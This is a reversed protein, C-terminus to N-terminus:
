FDLDAYHAPPPAGPIHDALLPRFSPRSKLRAYWERARPFDDWPVDGIYDVTSLQAGAAIDALSFADGALWNRRETLFGVYDLHYRINQIGARIAESSPQGLGLFRKMMKEGVLNQTVESAFKRDFWAFVRRVEARAQPTAGILMPEPHMEELYEAIVSAESVVTGDDEVLVPVQGAPNIALFEARREWVKEVRLEFELKKEKLLVRIERAHSSLPLHYLIRM